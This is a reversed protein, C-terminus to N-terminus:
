KIDKSVEEASRLSAVNICELCRSQDLEDSCNDTIKKQIFEADISPCNTIFDVYNRLKEITQSDISHEVKCAIRDAVLHDLTLVKTFFTRLVSHKALIEASIQKGKKTLTIPMYRQYKILGKKSLHRLAVTVSPKTVNLRKAIEDAHAHDNIEAIRAIAELYDELSASLEVKEKM